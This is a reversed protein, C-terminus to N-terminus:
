FISDDDEAPPAARCPLDLELKAAHEFATENVPVKRIRGVEEAETAVAQAEGPSAPEGPRGQEAQEPGAQEMRAFRSYIQIISRVRALLLEPDTPKGIYADAGGGLAAKEDRNATMLMTGVAMLDPSQRIRAILAEGDMDPLMFDTLVLNPRWGQLMEWADEASEACRVEYGGGERLVHAVFQLTTPSDDVLLIAGAPAAQAEEAATGAAAEPQPAEREPAPTEGAAEEEGADFVALPAMEVAERAEEAEKRFEDEIVEPARRAAPPQLHVVRGYRLRAALNFREPCPLAGLVEELSTSGEIARNMGAEFLTLMGRHRAATEVEELPADERLLRAVDEDLRLVEHVVLQGHYGTHMCAKCGAAAYFRVQREDIGWQRKTEEHLEARTKCHPCLKRIGQQAVVLTVADAVGERGLGLRALRSLATAAGEAEASALVLRDGAAEAAMAATRADPLAGLMVADPSKKLVAQLLAPFTRGREADVRAQFAGELRIDPPDEIGYLSRGQGLIRRAFAYLTGSRGSRPPGAVLVLGRGAELAAEVAPLTEPDLGLEEVPLQLYGTDLLRIRVDEGHEGAEAAIRLILADEGFRIKCRGKWPARRGEAGAMRRVQEELHDCVNSSVERVVKEQGDFCFRISATTPGRRIRVESAHARAAKVIAANLLKTAFRAADDAETRIGSLQLQETAMAPRRFLAHLRSEFDNKRLFVPRVPRDFIGGLADVAALDMPDLMGVVVDRGSYAIPVAHYERALEMSFQRILREDPQVHRLSVVPLKFLSALFNTIGDSQEMGEGSLLHVLTSGGRAAAAQRAENFQELTMLGHAILANAVERKM